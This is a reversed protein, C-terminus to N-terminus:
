FYIYHVLATGAAMLLYLLSSIIDSSCLVSHKKHYRIMHIINNTVATAALAYLIVFIYDIMADAVLFGILLFLVLVITIM